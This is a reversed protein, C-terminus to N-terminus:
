TSDSLDNVFSIKNQFNKDDLLFGSIMSTKFLKADFKILKEENEFLKITLERIRAIARNFRFNEYDETVYHITKNISSMFENDSDLKKGRYKGTIIRM